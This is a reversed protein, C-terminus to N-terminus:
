GAALMRHAAAVLAANDPAPGDPLALVDELGIRTALGLGAARELLPWATDDFGHLMIPLGPLAAQLRAQMADATAIAAALGPAEMEILLRLCRDAGQLGLLREVDAPGALGAEVGIGMGLMRAIVEPADPESLNVSVYDPRVAWGAMAEARAAGFPAIWDGTSIGVKMGPVAARVAALTEAVVRPDLSEARAADRPHIHLEEAGAVRVARADRAMAAPTLPLAPHADEPRAGNLCAQLRM